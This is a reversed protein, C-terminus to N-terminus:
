EVVLGGKMGLLRHTGVSCYFEFIGVKNAVFEVSARGGASVREIKTSFEDVVWDHTGEASEFIIRVRDGKSVRIEDQSFSFNKGTINFEKAEPTEEVSLNEEGDLELQADEVGVSEETSSVFVFVGMVILAVVILLIGFVSGKNNQM